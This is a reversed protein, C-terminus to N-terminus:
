PYFLPGFQTWEPSDLDAFIPTEGGSSGGFQSQFWGRFGQFALFVSFCQNKQGFGPQVSHWGSM